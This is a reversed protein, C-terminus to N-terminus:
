AWRRCCGQEMARIFPQGLSKAAIMGLMGIGLNSYVRYSGAPHKPQRARYYAMLQANNTVDDPVFLPLGSTHTALNLLSVGDFASGRLEPLYHSAPDKFSLKGQQQAYVALTATFTKSLSGVEFLTQETIPKGTQKSAVGYPYIQQKGDVSVAIAM